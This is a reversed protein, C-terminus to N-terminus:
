PTNPSFALNFWTKSTGHLIGNIFHGELKGYPWVDGQWAYDEIILKGGYDDSNILIGDCGLKTRVGAYSMKELVLSDVQAETVTCASNPLLARAITIGSVVTVLSLATVIVVSLLFYRISIIM